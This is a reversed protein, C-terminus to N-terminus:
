RRYKDIDTGPANLIATVAEISPAKGLLMM